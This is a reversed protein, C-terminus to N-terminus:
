NDNAGDNIWRRIVNREDKTIKQSGHPMQLAPDVQGELMRMMNSLTADGPNIVPGHKTGEMIGEYTEMSFGSKVKGEGSGTHCEACHEALIPMVDGAFSPHMPIKEYKQDAMAPSAAFAVLAGALLITRM